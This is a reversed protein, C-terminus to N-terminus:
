MVISSNFDPARLRGCSWRDFQKSIQQTRKWDYADSLHPFIWRSPSSPLFHSGLDPTLGQVKGKMPENGAVDFAGQVIVVGFTPAVETVPEKLCNLFANIPLFM